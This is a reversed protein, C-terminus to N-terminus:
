ATQRRVGEVEIDLEVFRDDGEKVTDTSASLTGVVCHDVLLHQPLPELTSGVLRTPELVMCVLKDRRARLVRRLVEDQEDIINLYRLQMRGILAEWTDELYPIGDVDTRPARRPRWSREAGAIRNWETRVTAWACLAGLEVYGDANSRDWIELYIESVEVDADRVFDLLEAEIQERGSTYPYGLGERGPASRTVNPNLIKEYTVSATTYTPGGVLDTIIDGDLRLCEILAPDSKDCPGLLDDDAELRVAGFVRVPGLICQSNDTGALSTGLRLLCAAVADYPGVQVTGVLAEAATGSGVYLSLNSTTSNVSKLVGRVRHVAGATLASTSVTDPTGRNSKLTLVRGSGLQFDLEANAVSPGFIVISPDTAGYPHDDDVQLLFSVTIDRPASGFSTSVARTGESIRLAQRSYWQGIAELMGTSATPWPNVASGWTTGTLAIDAVGKVGAVTGGSGETVNWGELLDRESGDLEDGRYAAIEADSMYRGYYAAQLWETAAFSGGTSSVGAYLREPGNNPWAASATLTAVQAGDVLLDMRQDSDRYRIAWTRWVGDGTITTTSTAVTSWNFCQLQLQFPNAVSGARLVVRFRIGATNAIVLPVLQSTEHTVPQHKLRMFFILTVDASGPIAEASIATDDVGDTIITPRQAFSSDLTMRWTASPSLNHGLGALIGVRRTEDFRALLTTYAVDATAGRWTLDLAEDALNSAEWGTQQSPTSTTYNERFVTASNIANEIGICSNDAM